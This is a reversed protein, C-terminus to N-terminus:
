PSSLTVHLLPLRAAISLAAHDKMVQDFGDPIAQPDEKASKSGCECGAVLALAVLWATLRGAMVVGIM